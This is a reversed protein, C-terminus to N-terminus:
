SQPPAYRRLLEAGSVPACLWFGQLRHCGLEALRNETRQDEVGEAVVILDLSRGLEIMAHVIREHQPVDLMDRVFSLDIKMEDLPMTALYSMSSYGTGFDDVSLRLGLGKLRRLAEDVTDPAGLVATETIEIVIREAPIGWTRLGRDIFDPLDRERLNNPSLNISMALDLGHARFNACQRLANGIVWFTVDNMLGASEAVAIVKDPGVPGLEGDQWRLLAELGVPQRQGPSFQPQFVLELRSNDIASRLRSEYRLVDAHPRQHSDAYLAIREIQDRAAQCALKAHSFLVQADSGHEPFIAIGIAPRAYMDGTGLSIPGTIARLAKQAALLAVGSGEIRSAVLAFEDRGTEGFIDNARLVAGLRHAIQARVRDGKEYGWLSDARSVAGVDILLVALQSDAAQHEAIIADLKRTLLSHGSDVPVRQHRLDNEASSVLTAAQLLMLRDLAELVRTCLGQDKSFLHRAAARLHEHMQMGDIRMRDLRGEAGVDRAWRTMLDQLGPVTLEGRYLTDLLARQAESVPTGLLPRGYADAANSLVQDRRGTPAWEPAREDISRCLGNLLAVCADDVGLEDMLRETTSAGSAHIRLATDPHAM